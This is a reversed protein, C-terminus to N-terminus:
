TGGLKRRNAYIRCKNQMYLDIGFAFINHGNHLISACQLFNDPVQGSNPLLITPPASLLGVLEFFFTAECM